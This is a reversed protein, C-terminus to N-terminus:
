YLSSPPREQGCTQWAALLAELLRAIASAARASGALVEEHTTDGANAVVAAVAVNLGCDHAARLEAAPSMSVTDVRLSQLVALEAPTEYQPGPVSAHVGIRAAVFPVAESASAALLCRALDVSTAPLTAPLGDVGAYQFDVVKGALVVQGAGLGEAVAGSASTLLLNKAGWAALSRVPLQVESLDFGEYEHVRGQLLAVRHAGNRCIVLAQRHGPVSGTRWNPVAAYLTESETCAAHPGAPLLGSGLIVALDPPAGLRSRLWAAAERAEDPGVRGPLRRRPRGPWPQSQTYPRWGREPALRQIATGAPQQGLSFPGIRERSSAPSTLHHYLTAGTDAFMGEYVAAPTGAPRPFMLLPVYERSHDTSPTTPDVGHDATVILLDDPRLAAVLMSLASDVAQLGHAFGDVDNRHGWIMDFDVLNTLLLGSEFRGQRNGGDVLEQVLSLNEENSTVKLSLSIGRGGFVEGIKGLGLVPVGTKSLLDLYTTGPPALSFDRRDKTRYFAGPRGAFPRAIVRAVAHPGHLLERATLCWEYLQELPVVDVHTAVQFVSDASTYVIPRGTVVHEEGLEAIIETGSAPRNGLVTRGIRQEFAGIVDPPFGHPYTPFPHPTVLGMHEWHGVTTDKGASLPALRGTLCLPDAVPPVGEIPIITGLGMRELFPLRLDLLRGINGLTDSGADGYDSADPLAGVGVGDLVIFIVRSM